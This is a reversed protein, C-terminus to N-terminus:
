KAAPKGLRLGYQEGCKGDRFSKRLGADDDGQANKASWESVKQVCWERSQPGSVTETGSSKEAPQVIPAPQPTPNGGSNSKHQWVALGSIATILAAAGTLIGPLSTWFSSKSDQDGM